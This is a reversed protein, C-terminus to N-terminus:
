NVQGKEDYTKPANAPKLAQLIRRTFEMNSSIISGNLQNQQKCQEVLDVLNNLKQKLTQQVHGEPIKELAQFLAKHVSVSESVGLMGRLTMEQDFLQNIITQKEAVSDILADPKSAKLAEFEQELIKQFLVCTDYLSGMVQELKTTIIEM